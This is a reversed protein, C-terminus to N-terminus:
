EIFDIQLELFSNKQINKLTKKEINENKYNSNEM